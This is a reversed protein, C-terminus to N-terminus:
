YLDYTFSGNAWTTRADWNLGVVVGRKDASLAKGYVDVTAFDSGSSTRINCLHWSTYVPMAWEPFILLRTQKTNVGGIVTFTAKAVGPSVEEVFPQRLNGGAAYHTFGSDLTLLSWRLDGSLSNTTIVDVGKEKLSEFSADPATWVNFQLGNDHFANVMDKTVTAHNYAVDASMRLRICESLETQTVSNMVWSLEIENSMNRLRELITKDFSIVVCGGNLIKAQKLMTIFEQLHGDTYNNSKIEVFPVSGASKCYQIAEAMTPIIKEADTLYGLGAGTDIRLARIQALTLSDVRGTGNTTRDVTDDHMVVWKGDKTIGVDFEIFRHRTVSKLALASNEPFEANNGRHACFNTTNSLYKPREVAKQDYFQNVGLPTIFKDTALGAVAESQTATGYNDVSGLGVKEKTLETKKALTTEAEIQTLFTEDAKEISYAGTQEATTAHPNEDDSVHKQFEELDAKLALDSEDAFGAKNLVTLPNLSVMLQVGIYDTTLNSATVGNSSDTYSLVNINGNSDIYNSDNIETTFDTYETADGQIKTTYADASEVFVAVKLNKNNPSAAKARTTVSFSIFNNKIYQVKEDTTMGEFIRPALQEIAQITNFISLQQPIVSGQSSGISVGQDDRGVLKNYNEQSVESWVASPKKLGTATYDTYASHPNAVTNGAVKGAFDMMKPVNVPGSFLQIADANTLRMNFDATLRNQLTDQKVGQSDTRAQVIEPTSDGSQAILDDFEKELADFEQKNQNARGIAQNSNEIATRSDAISQDAKKNAEKGATEAISKAEIGANTAITKAETAAATAAQKAETGATDAITKAEAGADTAIKKADKIGQDLDIGFQDVKTSSSNALDIAQNIKGRGANLTDTEQIHDVALGIM